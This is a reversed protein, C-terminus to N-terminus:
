IRLSELAVRKGAWSVVNRMVWLTGTEMRTITTRVTVGARAWTAVGM